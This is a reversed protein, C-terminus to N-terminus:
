TTKTLLTAIRKIEDWNEIVVLLEDPHIRKEKAKMAILYHSCFMLQEGDLNYEVALEHLSKSM